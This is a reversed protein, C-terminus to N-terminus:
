GISGVTFEGEIDRVMVNKSRCGRAWTTDSGRETNCRRCAFVINAGGGGGQSKPILHERTAGNKPFRGHQDRNPNILRIPTNCWYCRLRLGKRKQKPNGKKKLGSM